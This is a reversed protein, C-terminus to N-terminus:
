KYVNNTSQSVKNTNNRYALVSRVYNNNNKNNNNWSGNNFNLNWANNDNYETSSWYNNSVMKDGTNHRSIMGKGLPV